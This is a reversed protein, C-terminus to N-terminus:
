PLARPLLSVGPLRQCTAGLSQEIMRPNLAEPLGSLRTGFFQLTTGAVTVAAISWGRRM